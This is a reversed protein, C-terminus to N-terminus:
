GARIAADGAPIERAAALALGLAMEAVPQAYVPAICLVRIGRRFCEDYDINPLFNGEVNLVARLRPARSLREASLATQGIVATMGRPAAGGAARAPPAADPWPGPRLRELRDRDAPTFIQDLTRPYPDLVIVPRPLLNGVRGRGDGGRGDHLLPRGHSTQE